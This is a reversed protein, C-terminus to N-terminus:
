KDTACYSLNFSKNNVPFDAVDANITSQRLIEWLKQSPDEIKYKTIKGKEDTQATHIIKGRWGNIEKRITQNKPLTNSYNPKSHVEFWMGALTKCNRTISEIAQEIEKFRITMRNKLDGTYRGAETSKTQCVEEMRALVSPSSALTKGIQRSKKQVMKLTQTIETCHELNIRFNSGYPRILGRGFRNGCLKMFIGLVKTRQAECAVKITQFAIDTSIGAIDSLNMAVRELELAVERELRIIESCQQTELVEAMAMAHGITTDGAIQEALCMMRLQNEEQAAAEVIMNEIGRHQFGLEIDLGVIKNGMCTFKFVGPEIIGAHVPGVVIKHEKNQKM